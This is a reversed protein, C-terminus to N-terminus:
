ISNGRASLRRYAWGVELSATGGAIAGLAWLLGLSMVVEGGLCLIAGLSLMTLLALQLLRKERLARVEEPGLVWSVVLMSVSTFLAGCGVM